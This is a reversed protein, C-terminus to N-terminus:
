AHPVVVERRRRRVLGLGGLGLGLLLLSGPEPVDRSVTLSDIGIYNLLDAPGLYLFGFRVATPGGLGAVVASYQTWDTPFGGITNGPNIALLEGVNLIGVSLSDGYGGGFEDTRTWFSITDGNQLVLEPALLFLSVNGGPQGAEFNAAVYSDDAGAHSTFIGTNGQFWATSGVPTSNNIVQWGAGGLGSVNDFGESFIVAADARVAAFALLAVAVLKNRTKQM